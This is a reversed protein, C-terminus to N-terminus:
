PNTDDYTVAMSYLGTFNEASSNDPVYNELSLTATFNSGPFLFSEFSSTDFTV